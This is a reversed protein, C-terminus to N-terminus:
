RVPSTSRGTTGGLVSGSTGGLPGSSTGGLGGGSSASSGGIAGTATGGITSPTTPNTSIGAGGISTNSQSSAGGAPTGGLTGSIGGTLSGGTSYPTGGLTGPIGGTVSGGIGTNPTSPTSQRTSPPQNPDTPRLVNGSTDTGPTQALVSGAALMGGVAAAVVYKVLQM